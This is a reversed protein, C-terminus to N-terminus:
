RTFDGSSFALGVRVDYEKVTDPPDDGLWTLNDLYEAFLYFRKQIEARTTDDQSSALAAFPHWRAGGGARLYNEWWKDDHSPSVAWDVVAYAMVMSSGIETKPGAQINGFSLLGGYDEESFNTDRYSAQGFAVIAWNRDRNFLSDYYYDAGAQLDDDVPDADSPEDYFSRWAALAFFRLGRLWQREDGREVVYAQAGVGYQVNKQWWFDSATTYSPLVNAYLGFQHGDGIWGTLKIEAFADIEEYPQVIDTFNYKSWLARGQSDLQIADTTEEARAFGALVLLCAIAIRKM